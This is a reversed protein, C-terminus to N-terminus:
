IALSPSLQITKELHEVAKYGDDKFTCLAGLNAHLESYDPQLDLATRYCQEVSDLDGNLRLAAEKNRWVKHNRANEDLSQTFYEIAKGFKNLGM